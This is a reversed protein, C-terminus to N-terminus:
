GSTHTKRKGRVTKDRVFNWNCFWCLSILGDPLTAYVCRHAKSVTRGRMYVCVCMCPVFSFNVWEYYSYWHCVSYNAAWMGYVVVYLYVCLYVQIVLILLLFNNKHNQSELQRLVKVRHTAIYKHTHIYTHIYMYTQTHTLILTYQHEEAFKLQEM